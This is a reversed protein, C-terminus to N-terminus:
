REVPPLFNELAAIPDYVQSLSGVALALRRGDPSMSVGYPIRGEMTVGLRQPEGGDIPVQWVQLEDDQRRVKPLWRIESGPNWPASTSSLAYVIHRSDPTWTLEVLPRRFIRLHSLTLLNRPEGGEIPMLKLSATGGEMHWEVFALLRSNPSLSLTSISVPSAVRYLVAEGGDELNRRMVSLPTGRTESAWRVFFVQRDPSWVSGGICCDEVELIADVDGSEIDIRYLGRGGQAILSRGGPTWQPDLSYPRGINSPITREEGSELSRVVFGGWKGYVLQRGDPSWAVSARSAVDEDVTKEPSGLGGTESDREALYVANPMPLDPPGCCYYYGGTRTFGLGRGPADPYVLEPEGQPRGDAVRVIWTSPAGTRDSTFLLMRGDSTWDLVGDEGPQAVLLTEEGTDLGLLFIDRGNAEDASPYDYAVHRGDPSCRVERPSHDAFSRVIQLESEVLPVWALQQPRDRPDLSVLLRKGDPSWDLPRLDQVERDRYLVREGSGDIGVVRLENFGQENFWAYAVYRGDSSIRSYWASEDSDLWTGKRTLHRNERAAIEHVALNGTSWDVFTIHRGDLSVQGTIDGVM